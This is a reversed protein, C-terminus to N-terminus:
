WPDERCVLISQEADAPAPASNLVQMSSVGLVPIETLGPTRHKQSHGQESAHHIPGFPDHIDDSDPKHTSDTADEISVLLLRNVRLQQDVHRRNLGMAARIPEPDFGKILRAHTETM